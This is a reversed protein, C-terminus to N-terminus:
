NVNVVVIIIILAFHARRKGGRCQGERGGDEGEERRGKGM